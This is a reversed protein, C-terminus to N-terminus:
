QQECAHRSNKRKLSTFAELHFEVRLIRCPRVFGTVRCQDQMTVHQIRVMLFYAAICQGSICDQCWICWIIAFPDPDNIGGPPKLARDSLKELKVIGQQGDHSCAS